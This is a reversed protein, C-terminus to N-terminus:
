GGGRWRGVHVGGRWGAAQWERVACHQMEEQRRLLAAIRRSQETKGLEAAARWVAMAAEEMEVVVEGILQPSHVGHEVAGGGEGRDQKQGLSEHYDVPTLTPGHAFYCRAGQRPATRSMESESSSAISM